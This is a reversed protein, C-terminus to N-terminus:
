FEIIKVREFHSRYPVPWEDCNLNNDMEVMNDLKFYGRYYSCLMKCKSFSSGFEM